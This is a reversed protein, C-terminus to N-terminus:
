LPEPKDPYEDCVNTQTVGIRMVLRGVISATMFLSTSGWLDGQKNVLLVFYVALAILVTAVPRDSVPDRAASFLVLGNRILAILFSVVLVVGPLGLEFACDAVVM